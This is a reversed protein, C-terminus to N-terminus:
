EHKHADPVAKAPPPVPNHKMCHGMMGTAGPKGDMTGHSQGSPPNAPKGGPPKAMNEMMPCNHHMHAADPGPVPAAPSAPTTVVEPPHHGAHPDAPAALAPASVAVGFTALFACLKMM